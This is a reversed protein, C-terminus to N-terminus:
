TSPKGVQYTINIEKQHFTELADKHLYTILQIYQFFSFTDHSQHVKWVIHFMSNMYAAQFYQALYFMKTTDKIIRKVDYCIIVPHVDKIIVFSGKLPHDMISTM